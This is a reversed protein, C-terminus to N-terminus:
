GSKSYKSLQCRNRKFRRTVRGIAHQINLKIEEQNLNRMIVTRFEVYEHNTITEKLFESNNDLLQQLNQLYNQSLGLFSILGFLLIIKILM